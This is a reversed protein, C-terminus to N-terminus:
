GGMAVRVEDLLEWVRFAELARRVCMSFADLDSEGVEVLFFRRSSASESSVAVGIQSFRVVFVWMTGLFVRLGELIMRGWGRWVGEVAVM